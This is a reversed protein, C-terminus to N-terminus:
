ESHSKRDYIIEPPPLTALVREISEPTAAVLRVRCAAVFELDAHLMWDKPNVVAVVLMGADMVLPVFKRERMLNGGFMRLVEEDRPVHDLDLPDM